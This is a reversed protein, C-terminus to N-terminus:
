DGLWEAVREEITARAHPLMDLEALEDRSVWRSDTVEHEQLNFDRSALRMEFFFLVFHLPTESRPVNWAIFPRLTRVVESDVGLEEQFERVIAQEPSEGPDIWGGVGAWFGQMDRVLLLKDDDIVVGAVAMMVNHQPLRKPHRAELAAELDAL